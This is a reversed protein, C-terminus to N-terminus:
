AGVPFGVFDLLGHLAAATDDIEEHECILMDSITPANDSPLLLNNIYAEPYLRAFLTQFTDVTGGAGYSNRVACIGFDGAKFPVDGAHIAFYPGQVYLQSMQGLSMKDLYVSRGAELATTLRIRLFVRDPMIQPTRFSANQAEYLVGLETLDIELRNQVTREDRIVVGDEDCLDIVLIGASPIIGDRRIYLNLSYQTLPELSAATDVGFEQSLQTLTSGADGILRLAHEGDYILTNEEDFNTGTTGADINFADPLGSSWTDFGSNTLFNGGSADSNGDIVVVADQGDSGLPWDHAFLDNQSGQGTVEFVEGGAATAGSFSDAVCTFLVDESFCNELVRGDSPRKTSICITGDGYSGYSSFGLPTGTIVNARVTAGALIMQRILERASALFNSTTLNQFVRPNDRFIMRNLTTVGLTRCLGAISGFSDVTGIWVSGVQAQLDPEEDYQETIGGDDGILNQKQEQQYNRMSCLVNGLRGLRNFYNGAADGFSLM